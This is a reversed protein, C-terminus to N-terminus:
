NKEIFKIAAEYVMDVTLEKICKFRIDDRTCILPKPSYFFCPSCDLSLSAIKHKTKWPHIYNTNTPGIIAIVNLSLASAVHMLSSDNTIFLDCRKMIATSQPLNATKIVFSNENSIQLNINEKLKDEEPGGFLFIKARNNEILKKGLEAFKEPEWRRRIHNKLISCGPHFGIVLDKESIRINTLYKEAYSVDEETLPFTMQPINDIVKGTLKEVLKINEEVNHLEDNEQITVNNLWGLNVFNKRKYNIGVRKKAGILTSILNYEKRNSPYVNISVDYNHRLSLVFKLAELRSKKIFDFYYIKHVQPLREYLDAAGKFMVLCDIQSNPFEEKLKQLAPTFM